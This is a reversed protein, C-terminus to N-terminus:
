DPLMIISIDVQGGIQKYFKLIFDPFHIGDQDRFTTFKVFLGYDKIIGLHHTVEKIFEQYDIHEEINVLLIAGTDNENTKITDQDLLKKLKDLIDNPVGVFRYSYSVQAESKIM